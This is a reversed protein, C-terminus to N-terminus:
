TRMNNLYKRRTHLLNILKTSPILTPLRVNTDTLSEKLINRVAVHTQSAGEMVSTAGLVLNGLDRTKDIKNLDKDFSDEIEKIRIQASKKAESYGLSNLENILHRDFLSM